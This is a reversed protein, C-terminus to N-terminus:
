ASSPMRSLREHSSNLRTSKRDAVQPEAPELGAANPEVTRKGDNFQIDATVESITKVTGHGYQPHRVTLGIHLSEIKMDPM